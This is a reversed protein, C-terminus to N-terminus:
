VDDEPTHMKEFIIAAVGLVAAPLAVYRFLISEIPMLLPVCLVFLSGWGALFLLVVGIISLRTHTRLTM